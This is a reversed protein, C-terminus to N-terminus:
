WSCRDVIGRFTDLLRRLITEKVLGVFQVEPISDASRSTPFFFCGVPVYFGALRNFCLV